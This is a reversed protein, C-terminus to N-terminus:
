SSPILVGWASSATTACLTIFFVGSQRQTGMKTELNNETEEM